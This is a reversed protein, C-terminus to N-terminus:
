SAAAKDVIYFRFRVHKGSAPDALTIATYGPSKALYVGQVGPPNLADKRKVDMVDTNQVTEVQWAAADRMAITISDGVHYFLDGNAENVDVTKDYVALDRDIDALMATAQSDSNTILKQTAELEARLLAARDNPLLGQNVDGDIREGLVGIM